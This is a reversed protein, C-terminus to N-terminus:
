KPTREKRGIADGQMEWYFFNSNWLKGDHRKLDDLLFNFDDNNTNDKLTALDFAGKEGHAIIWKIKDPNWLPIKSKEINLRTERSEKLKEIKSQYTKIVDECFTIELDIDSLKPFINKNTDQCNSL